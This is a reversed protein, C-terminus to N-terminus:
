PQHEGRLRPRGDYLPTGRSAFVSAVMDRFWRNGPEHEFRRNWHLHVEYGASPLVPDVIAFEAQDFEIAIEYPIIAALDTERVIAPIVSFHEVTLRLRDALQLNHLIRVTDAHTRVAVFDLNRMAAQLAASQSLRAIPHSRCVVVVYRDVLLLAKQMGKLQPLFGFAFDIRGVEMAVELESPQAYEADVRLGPATKRMHAMLRPLFRGAGIDSMHLRFRRLSTAPQFSDGEALAQELMELAARVVPALREARQSPRVGGAVREFLPDALLVRLRALGQSTAPQTVNLREAARSVSRTNYVADFIRLLNLDLQEIHM